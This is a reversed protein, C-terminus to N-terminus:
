GRRPASRCTHAMSRAATPPPDGPPPPATRWPEASQGSATRTAFSLSAGEECSASQAARYASTEPRPAPAHSVRLSTSWRSAASAATAAAAADPYGRQAASRADAACRLDRSGSSARAHSRAREPAGGAGAGGGALLQRTRPLRSGLSVPPGQEGGGPSRSGHEGAGGASGAGRRMSLPGGVAAPPAAAPPRPRAPHPGDSTAPAARPPAASRETRAPTRRARAAYRVRLAAVLGGRQEFEARM